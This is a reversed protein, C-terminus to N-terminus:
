SQEKLRGKLYDIRKVPTPDEDNLIALYFSTYDGLYILSFTRALLGEGVSSFEQLGVAERLLIEKSIEIRKKVQPHDDKDKLFIAIFNKLVKHPYQWGVIENHNMEPLVHVSALTKSNEALEGRWRSAVAGLHAGSAYIVCFNGWLQGALRKAPNSETKVQCGLSDRQMKELVAATEEVQRQQDDILGLRSLITLVPFCLFGLAARPPFGTPILFCPHGDKKALDTLQGGSSLVIIKSQREQAQRYASLTEETNGSYSTLIVLCQRDVFGPLTYDRNIYVPVKLRDRLYSSIIEAGIASGGMGCFIILKTMGLDQPLSFEKGLRYAQRLQQPFGALLARMQAQDGKEILKIDDLDHM